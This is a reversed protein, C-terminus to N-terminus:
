IFIIACIFTLYCNTGCSANIQIKNADKAVKFTYVNSERQMASKETIVPAIIVNTYNEM